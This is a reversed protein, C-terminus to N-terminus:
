VLPWPYHRNPGPRPFTREALLTRMRRGMAALEASSLLGILPGSSARRRDLADAATAVDELWEEAIPEDVWDWIVSRLKYQSHFCLGHDIGWITGSADLLCHGGKRDANNAIADFVAMRKLQPVLDPKERQVFFHSEPDHDIFLQVSGIGQPGDRSVTPPIFDWGLLKALEYAAVERKYLEGEPFDWLPSEGKHPKYIAAFQQGSADCMHALYVYNSSYWLSQVDHFEAGRLLDEAAEFDTEASVM